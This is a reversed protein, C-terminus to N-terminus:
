LSRSGLRDLFARPDLIETIGHRQPFHRLNGTILFDASGAEACELFRNDSEHPSVRLGRSPYVLTALEDFTRLAGAIDQGTLQLRPRPLIRGYEALVDNSVVMKFPPQLLLKYVTSSTGGPKRLASVLVNTDLVVLTM